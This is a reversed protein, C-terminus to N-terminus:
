VGDEGLSSTVRDSRSEDKRWLNRKGVEGETFWKVSVAEMGWGKEEKRLYLVRGEKM